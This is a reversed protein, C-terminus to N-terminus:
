QQSKKYEYSANVLIDNKKLEILAERLVDNNNLIVKFINHYCSLGWPSNHIDQSTTSPIHLIQHM